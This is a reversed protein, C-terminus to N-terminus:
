RSPLIITIRSSKSLLAICIINLTKIFYKLQAAGAQLFEGLKTLAFRKEGFQSAKRSYM